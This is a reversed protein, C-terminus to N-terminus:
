RPVHRTVRNKTTAKRRKTKAELRPTPDPAGQTDFRVYCELLTEYNIKRLQEDTLPTEKSNCLEWSSIVGEEVLVDLAKEFPKVIRRELHRDTAMTENYSPIDPAIDLLSKVSIINSTGKTFNNDIGHHLILKRGIAYANGNRADLKFLAHPMQMVYANALYQAIPKSFNIRIYGNKFEVMDCIRMKKFEQKNKGRHEYWEISISYLSSLDEKLTIRAKDISTKTEKVGCLSLYEELPISVTTDIEGNGKYDCQRTLQITLADFLKNTSVRLGSALSKYNEFFITFGKEKDTITAIGTIKNLNPETRRTNITSLKNTGPGQLMPSYAPEAIPLPLNKRTEPPLSTNTKQTKEDM